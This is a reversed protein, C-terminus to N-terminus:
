PQAATPRRQQAFLWQFVELNAYTQTWADHGADPYLTFRPAGGATRIADILKQSERPPVAEDRAGHFAWVPLDRLRPARKLDGSGCIPIIAAYREPHRQALGWTAYGGMSLGTLYIRDPDVRHRRAIEVLLAELAPLNWWSDEPCQPSVVLCPFKQGAAILQPPGFRAVQTLDDGREGGGHLFLLLPWRYTPDTEYGDPLALLYNFAYPVSLEAREATQQPASAAHILGSLGAAFLFTFVSKMPELNPSLLPTTM